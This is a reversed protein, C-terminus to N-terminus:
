NKYIKCNYFFSDHNLYFKIVCSFISTLYILSYFYNIKVIPWLGINQDLGYFSIACIWIIFFFNFKESNIKIIYFNIIIPLFGFIISLLLIDKVDLNSRFIWLPFVCIFSYLNYLKTNM